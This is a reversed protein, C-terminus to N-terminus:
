VDHHGKSASSDACKEVAKRIASAVTRRVDPPLKRLPDMPIVTGGGWNASPQMYHAMIKRAEQLDEGCSACSPNTTTRLSQRCCKNMSTM